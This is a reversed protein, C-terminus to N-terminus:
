VASMSKPARARSATRTGRARQLMAGAATTAIPRWTTAPVRATPWTPRAPTPVGGGRASRDPRAPSAAGPATRSARSAPATAACVISCAPPSTWAIRALDATRTM